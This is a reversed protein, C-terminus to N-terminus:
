LTPLPPATPTTPPPAVNTPPPLPTVPPTPVPPTSVSDSVANKSGLWTWLGWVFMVAGLATMAGTMGLLPLCTSNRSSGSTACLSGVFALSLGYSGGIIGGITAVVNGPHDIDKVETRRVVKEVGYDNQLLLVERDGGVIRTEERKGDRTIVTATTSCGSVLLVLCWATTKM